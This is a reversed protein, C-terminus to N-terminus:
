KVVEIRDLQWISRAHIVATRYDPSSDYPYVIWLPGKDRVSMEEDNLLYAIIPGDPTADSVPIEVTYDNIATALLTGDMLDLLETLTHLSVGQFKHVGETWITSTEITRDGLEAFSQLDFQLTDDVNAVTIDGTVTLIVPGQPSTVKEAHGPATGFGLAASAFFAITVFHKM